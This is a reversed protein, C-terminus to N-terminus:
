FALPHVRERTPLPELAAMCAYALSANVEEVEPDLSDLESKEKKKKQKKEAAVAVWPRLLQIYKESTLAKTFPDALNIHTRVHAFSSAWDRVAAYRLMWHKTKKTFEKMQTVQIASMNDVLIPPLVGDSADFNEDEPDHEGMQSLLFGVSRVLQVTDFQAQVEAQCTSHARLAQRACKWAIPFSRWYVISGSTSRLELSDGAHDADSFAVVDASEPTQGTAAITERFKDNFATETEPSYLLGDDKSDRLYRM